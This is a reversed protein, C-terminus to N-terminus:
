WQVRPLTLTFTAGEGPIGHATLTGGLSEAIRRCLALGIGYGATKATQPHLRHFIGFISEEQSPEFGMGNDQISLQLSAQKRTSEIQIILPIAPNRYKLANGLLNQILQQLRVPEGQVMPMPGTIKIQAQSEHIALELDESASRLIESLSIWESSEHARGAHGYELVAHIMHSMRESGDIMRDLYFTESESLRGQLSEQLLSGFSQVKRLPERLDHSISHAFLTLERNSRELEATMNQNQRRLEQTQMVRQICLHLHASGLSGIELADQAGHRLAQLASDPDSGGHIYLVPHWTGLSKLAELFAWPSGGEAQDCLLVLDTPKHRYIELAAAYNGSEQIAFQRSIDKRLLASLMRRTALASSLLLVNYLDSTPQVM